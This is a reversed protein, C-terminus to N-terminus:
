SRPRRRHSRRSRSPRTIASAAAGARASTRLARAARHLPRAAPRREVLRRSARRVRAVGSRGLAPGRDRAVLPDATRRDSSSGSALRRVVVRAAAAKPKSASGSSRLWALGHALGAREAGRHGGLDSAVLKAARKTPLTTRSSARRASKVIEGLAWFTIGEGYPLCRGQRWYSSARPPRRRAGPVGAILRSKGSVRARGLAHRAPPSQERSRGAQVPGRLLALEHEVDSSLPRRDPRRRRRRVPWARRASALHRLPEAKGKM